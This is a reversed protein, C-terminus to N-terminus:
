AKDGFFGIRRRIDAGIVNFGSLFPFSPFGNRDSEIVIKGSRPDANTLGPPLLDRSGEKDRQDGKAANRGARSVAVHGVCLWVIRAAVLEPGHEGRDLRAHDGLHPIRAPPLAPVSPDLAHGLVQQLETIRRVLGLRPPVM